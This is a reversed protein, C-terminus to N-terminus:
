KHTGQEAASTAIPDEALGNLTCRGSPEIRWVGIM